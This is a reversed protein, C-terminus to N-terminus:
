LKDSLQFARKIQKMEGNSIGFKKAVGLWNFIEHSIPHIPYENEPSSELM